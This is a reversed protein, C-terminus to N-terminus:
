ADLASFLDGVRCRFGPVVADGDLTDKATLIRIDDLARYVTVTRGRPYVVWGMEVGAAFWRRMKDDVEEATDSPSVVEVILAPAEPFYEAPIGFVAIREKRVFSADPALVTDPDRGILFGTEACFVQGLGNERVHETLLWSIENSLFGHESGAPTMRRLEGKILEYRFGDDKMHLLEDATTIRTATSM